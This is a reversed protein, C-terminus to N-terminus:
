MWGTIRAVGVAVLLGAVLFGIFAMRYKTGDASARKARSWGMHSAAMALTMTAAHEWFTVNGRNLFWATPALSWLVIGLLWQVTIVMPTTVGLIHDLRSWRQKAALGILLKVLALVLV